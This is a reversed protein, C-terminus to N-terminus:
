KTLLSFAEIEAQEHSLGKEEMKAVTEIMKKYDHPIIKKFHKLTDAFESLIKEGKKSGTNKVHEDILNKLEQVDYKDTVPELSVMDKNLRKYLTDDPDLVYAIGGSMGAAFNKGVPGM